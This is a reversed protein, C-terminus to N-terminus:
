LISNELDNSKFFISIVATLSQKIVNGLHM